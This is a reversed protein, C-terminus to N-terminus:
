FILFFFLKNSLVRTIDPMIVFRPLTKHQHYRFQLLTLPLTQPPCPLKTYLIFMAEKIAVITHITNNVKEHVEFANTSKTVLKLPICGNFITKAIESM